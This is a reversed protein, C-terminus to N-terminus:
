AIVPLRTPSQCRCSPLFRCYRWQKRSLRSDGLLGKEMNFRMLKTLAGLFDRGHENGLDEDVKGSAMNGDLVAELNTREEAWYGVEQCIFPRFCILFFRTRVM